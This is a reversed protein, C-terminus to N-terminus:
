NRYDLKKFPEPNAVKKWHKWQKILGGLGLGHSHYVSFSCDRIAIYGRKLWHDAWEGDEGGSGYEENLNRKEWLDKRIIANTFGLVGMGSTRIVVKKKFKNCIKHRVSNFFIKEWITAGPLAAVDGYVGMIKDNVFDKIGSELWTKSIPLSHGSLFVFFKGAGSNRCGYNLAYPYSFDEPKIKLVKVSFKSIIELTRDTSGSDVIIIEFDQYTQDFLKKLVKEIWKEENKTRIIISTEM